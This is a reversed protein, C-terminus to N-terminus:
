LLACSDVLKTLSMRPGHIIDGIGQRRRRHATLGGHARRQGVLWRQAAHWGQAV